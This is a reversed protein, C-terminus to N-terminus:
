SIKKGNTSDTKAKLINKKQTKQTKPNTAKEYDNQSAHLARYGDSKSRYAVNLGYRSVNGTFCIM